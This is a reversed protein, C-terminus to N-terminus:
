QFVEFNAFISTRWRIFRHHFTKVQVISSNTEPLIHFILGEVQYPAQYQCSLHSFSKQSSIEQFNELIKEILDLNISRRYFDKLVTYVSDRICM